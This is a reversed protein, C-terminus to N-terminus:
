KSTVIELYSNNPGPVAGKIVLLNSEPLVKVVKLGRITVSDSGKRGAMRQGKFTRSPFSSGGVSGPARLRDSQGHTKSGGGFHYRKVVGAFGKGKSVGSVKVTDGEKFISVKVEDGANLEDAFIEKRFESMKYSPEVGSKQFHGLQPKATRNEKKKDFCIQYAAYGDKDVTKVQSVFCPGAEIVTCPIAKRNEDFLSTMGIKKGLIASM